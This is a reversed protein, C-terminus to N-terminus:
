EIYLSEEFINILVIDLTRRKSLLLGMAGNLLPLLSPPGHVM